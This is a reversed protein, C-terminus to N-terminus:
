RWREREEDKGVDGAEPQPDPSSASCQLDVPRRDESTNEQGDHIEKRGREHERPCGPPPSMEIIMIPRAFSQDRTTHQECIADEYPGHQRAACRGPVIPPEIEIKTPVQDSKCSQHEASRPAEIVNEQNPRDANIECGSGIEEVAGMPAMRHAYHKRRLTIGPTRKGGM